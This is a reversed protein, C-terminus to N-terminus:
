TGEEEFSHSVAVPIPTIASFMPVPIPEIIPLAPPVPTEDANDPDTEVEGRDM